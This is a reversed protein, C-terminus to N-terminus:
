NIMRLHSKKVEQKAAARCPDALGNSVEDKVIRSEERDQNVRLAM